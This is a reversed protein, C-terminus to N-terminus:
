LNGKAQPSQLKARISAKLVSEVWGKDIENPAEDCAAVFPSVFRENIYKEVASWELTQGEAVKNAREGKDAEARERRTREFRLDGAISRHIERISYTPKAEIEISRLGRRITERSVGFEEAAKQLSLTIQKKKM